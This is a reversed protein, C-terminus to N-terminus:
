QCRPSLDNSYASVVGSMGFFKAVSDGLDGMSERERERERERLMDNEKRKKKEKKLAKGLLSGKWFNEFALGFGPRLPPNSITKL